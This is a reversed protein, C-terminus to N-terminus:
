VSPPVSYSKQRLAITARFEPRQAATRPFFFSSVLVGGRRKHTKKLIRQGDICTVFRVAATPPDLLYPRTTFQDFDAHLRFPFCCLSPSRFCQRVFIFRLCCDRYSYLIQPTLSQISVRAKLLATYCCLMVRSCLTLTVSFNRMNHGDFRLCCPM